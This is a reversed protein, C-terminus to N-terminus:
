HHGAANEHAMSLYIITLIMFIFAQITIVLVHFLSWLGGVTWQSWWPLMAILFFILEGAFINGYLRLSLSLPKVVEEIFHFIFNLPALWISFPTTFIEKGFDKLGKIKFNYFITLVFVTLSLGFTVNTDDTPVLRFPVDPLGFLNRLWSIIDVPILDMFNMLWVWVFITLALPGILESRGHFIDKVMKQIFELIMEIFNQLTGPVGSKARQAIFYFFSFFLLGLAISVLLTDINLTWFGNNEFRLTRLGFQFHNLHQQIYNGTSIATKM